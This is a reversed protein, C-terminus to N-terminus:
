HLSSALQHRWSISAIRWAATRLSDPYMAPPLSWVCSCWILVIRSALMKYTYRIHAGLMKM